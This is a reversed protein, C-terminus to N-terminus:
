RRLDFCLLRTPAPDSGFRERTNQCVYLLGRSVVPRTWSENARFLSARAMVQAGQPTARIWLLHGNDGLCLFDGDAHLISGEGVSFPLTKPEGKYVVSEEWALDTRSLEEGTRPDVCVMAGLRDSRGDIMYVHGGDVIPNSFQLGLRRTRWLERWGGEKAFVLGASGVNYSATIYVCDDAIVPSAGLVSEYTRSRFPYTFEVAGSTPDIVMLGGTPPRSDGGAMVLLRRRGGVEAIVPSACSAGWD